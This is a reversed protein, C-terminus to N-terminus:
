HVTAAANVLAQVGPVIMILLEGQRAAASNLTSQQQTIWAAPAATGGQFYDVAQSGIGAVQALLASLSQNEQMLTSSQLIPQLTADNQQWATLQSRISTWLGTAGKGAAIASNVLDNFQRAADSEPYITDILRNLPTSTTYDANGPRTYDKVPELADGLTKVADYDAGGALRAYMATQNARHRLGLAELLRNSAALRSYMSNVDTVGAPSWLREAVAGLRTFIRGEINEPSVFEAWQCAEGGIIRAQQEPTLQAAAGSLPDVAYHDSAHHMLDLYYGASLITQYGQQAATALTNPTRWSQMLVDQPLNPNLIDDWGMMKKGYKAVIAWVRKNFYAQLDANSAIGNAAMFQQVHVSATWESGSVEDGGIHYYADPFLAAMEGIFGDLFTYLDQNTPDMCSNNGGWRVAIPMWAGTTHYQPYAAFWATSHGPMDFEPVIRIGRDRAYAILARVQDQTYYQGGSALQQLPPFHMSEIRVAQDDSLHWHLVNMKLGSMGDLIRQMVDVPQFHRVADVLLGRWAFRPRDDVQVAPVGAGPAALQLFTEMGRLAGLPTAASLLAHASDVQLRYSEDLGLSLVDPAPQGCHIELTASSGSSDPGAPLGAGSQLALRALMRQAGNLVIPDQVGTVSVTFSSNITLAGAGYSISSPMPMLALTGAPLGALPSGLAASALTQSASEGAGVLTFAYNHGSTFGAPLENGNAKSSYLTAPAGDVSLYLRANGATMQWTLTGSPTASLSGAPRAVPLQTVNAPTGGISLNVEAPGFDPALDNPAQVNFQLAGAFNPLTGAYWVPANKGQISATVPTAPDIKTVPAGEGTNM